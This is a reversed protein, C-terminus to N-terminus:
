IGLKTRLAQELGESNLALPAGHSGQSPDPRPSTPANLHALLEDATAAVEEETEGILYKALNAPVGKTLAVRDRLAQKTLAALADRAQAAEKQARELDTLNASEIQSLKAALDAASKEAAKRAAREAALAKQGGEGLVEAPDGQATPTTATTAEVTGAAQESM